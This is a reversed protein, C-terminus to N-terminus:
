LKFMRFFYLHNVFTWRLILILLLPFLLFFRLLLPHYFYFLSLGLARQLLGHGLWVIVLLGFENHKIGIQEVCWRDLPRIGVLATYKLGLHAITLGDRDLFTRLLNPPFTYLDVGVLQISLNTFLIVLPDVTDWSALTVFIWVLISFEPTRKITIFFSKLFIFLTLFLVYQLLRGWLM